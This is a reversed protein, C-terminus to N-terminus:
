AVLKHFQLYPELSKELKEIYIAFHMLTEHSDTSMQSLAENGGSAALKAAAEKYGIVKYSKNHM